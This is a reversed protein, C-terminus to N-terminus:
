ILSVMCGDPIDAVSVDKIQNGGSEGSTWCRGLRLVPIPMSNFGLIYSYICLSLSLKTSVNFSM